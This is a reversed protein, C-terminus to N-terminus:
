IQVPLPRVTNHILEEVLTVSLSLSAHLDARHTVFVGSWHLLRLHADLSDKVNFDNWTSFSTCKLM